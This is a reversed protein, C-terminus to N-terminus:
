DFLFNPPKRNQNEEKKEEKKPQEKGEYLSSPAKVENNKNININNQNQKIDNNNDNNEYFLFMSVRNTEIKSKDPAVFTKSQNVMPKPMIIKPENKIM